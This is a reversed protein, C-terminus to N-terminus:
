GSNWWRGSLSTMGARSPPPFSPPSLTFDSAEELPEEGAGAEVGEEEEAVDKEEEEDAEEEETESVEAPGDEELSLDEDEEEFPLFFGLAPFFPLVGLVGVRDREGTELTREGEASGSSIVEGEENL